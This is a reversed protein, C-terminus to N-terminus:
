GKKRALFKEAIYEPGYLQAAERQRLAFRIANVLDTYTYSREDQRWGSRQLLKMKYDISITRGAKLKYRIAAVAAATLGLKRGIMRTNIMRAFEEHIADTNM